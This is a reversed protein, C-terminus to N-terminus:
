KWTVDAKFRKPVRRFKMRPYGVMMAGLFAHDDPIGLADRVPRSMNAAINLYGAWCAGMGHAPAALELHALAITADSTAIRDQRHAHAVILHPAKRCIPDGRKAAYILRVLNLQEVLPSKQRVMEKTWEIVMGALQQVVATDHIVIWKVPHRNVGSPAYRVVDLLEELAARDVPDEKFNRVSRRGFFYRRLQDKTIGHNVDAVGADVLSPAQVTIVNEPCIAECHGCKTCNAQKDPDIKPYGTESDPQIIEVPCITVCEHCRTCRALDFVNATM